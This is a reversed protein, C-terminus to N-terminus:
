ECAIGDNDRDLHAAYGPEGRHLPAQGANRVADCNKYYVGPNPAPSAPVSPVPNAPVSPVPESPVSPAPAPAPQAPAPCLQASGSNCLLDNLPDAGALPSGLVLTAAAILCASGAGLTRRRNLLFTKM